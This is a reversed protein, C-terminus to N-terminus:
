ISVVTSQKIVRCLPLLILQHFVNKLRFELKSGPILVTELSILSM